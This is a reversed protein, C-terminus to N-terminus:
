GTLYLKSMVVWIFDVKADWVAVFCDEREVKEKVLCVKDKWLKNDREAKNVNNCIM